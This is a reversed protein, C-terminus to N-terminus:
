TQQQDEPALKLKKYIQEIPMECFEPKPQQHYVGFQHILEGDSDTSGAYKVLCNDIPHTYKLESSTPRSFIYRKPVFFQQGETLRSVQEPSIKIYCSMKAIIKKDNVRHLMDISSEADAFHSNGLGDVTKCAERIGQPDITEFASIGEYSVYDRGDTLYETNNEDIIGIFHYDVPQLKPNATSAQKAALPDFDQPKAHSTFSDMTFKHARSAAQIALAKSHQYGAHVSSQICIGVLKVTVFRLMRSKKLVTDKLLENLKEEGYEQLARALLAIPIQEFISLNPGVIVLSIAYNTAVPLLIKSAKIMSQTCGQGKLFSDVIRLTINQQREKTIKTGTSQSQLTQYAAIQRYKKSKKPEHHTAIKLDNGDSPFACDLISGGLYTIAVATAAIPGGFFNAVFSHVACKATTKILYPSM